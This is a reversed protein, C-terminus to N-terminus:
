YLPMVTTKYVEFTLEIRVDPESFLFHVVDFILIPPDNAADHLGIVIRLLSVISCARKDTDVVFAGVDGHIACASNM